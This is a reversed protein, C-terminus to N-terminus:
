KGEKIAFFVFIAFPISCIGCCTLIMEPGMHEGDSSVLSSFAILGLISLIGFMITGISSRTTTNVTYGWEISSECNPCSFTGPVGDEFEVVEDCQPCQIEVM